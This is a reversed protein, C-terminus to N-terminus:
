YELNYLRAIDKIKRTDRRDADKQLQALLIEIDERCNWIAQRAQSELDVPEIGMRKSANGWGARVYRVNLKDRIIAAAEGGSIVTM